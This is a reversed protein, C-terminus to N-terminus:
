GLRLRRGPSPQGGAAYQKPVSCCLAFDRPGHIRRFGVWKVFQHGESDIPRCLNQRCGQASEGVPDATQGKAAKEQERARQLCRHSCDYARSARARPVGEETSEKASPSGILSIPQTVKESRQRKRHVPTQAARFGQESSTSRSPDM